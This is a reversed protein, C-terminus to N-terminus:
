IREQNRQGMYIRPRNFAAMSYALLSVRGKKKNRRKFLRWGQMKRLLEKVTKM